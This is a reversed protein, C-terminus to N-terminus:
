REVGVAQETAVRSLVAVWRDLHALELIPQGMEELIRNVQTGAGIARTLEGHMYQVRMAGPPMAMLRSVELLRSHLFHERAHALQYEIGGVACAGLECVFYRRLERISLIRAVLDVPFTSLLARLYVRRGRGGRSKGDRDVSPRNLRTLSFSEREGLGGDWADVGLAGLVLGFTGARAAIVPLGYQTATSLFRAYTTLRGTSDRRPNFLTPQVYVGAYTRDQLQNYIGFPSRMVELNPHATALLPRYPVSSGNM